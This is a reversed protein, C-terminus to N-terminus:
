VCFFLSFCNLVQNLFEWCVSFNHVSIQNIKTNREAKRSGKREKWLPKQITLAAQQHVERRRRRRRRRRGGTRRRRQGRYEADPHPATHARSLL